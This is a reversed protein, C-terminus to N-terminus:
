EFSHVLQVTGSGIRKIQQLPGSFEIHVEQRFTLKTLQHLLAFIPIKLQPRELEFHTLKHDPHEFLTLLQEPPKLSIVM